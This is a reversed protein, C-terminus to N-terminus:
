MLAWPWYQHDMQADILMASAMEKITRNFREAVGNLQPTYSTTVQHVIGLKDLYAAFTAKTSPAATQEFQRSRGSGRGSRILKGVEFITSFRAPRYTLSPFLPYPVPSIM